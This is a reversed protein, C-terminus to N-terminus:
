WRLLYDPSHLLYWGTGLHRGHAGGGFALLDRVAHNLLLLAEAGFGHPQTFVMKGTIRSCQHRILLHSLLFSESMESPLEEESTDAPLLGLLPLIQM